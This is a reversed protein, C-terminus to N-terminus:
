KPYHKRSIEDGSIVSIETLVVIIFDMGAIFKVCMHATFAINFLRCKNM